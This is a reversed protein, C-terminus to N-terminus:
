LEDLHNLNERAEQAEESNPAVAIVREWEERAQAYRERESYLYGLNLRSQVENPDLELARRYAAYAEYDMGKEGYAVGLNTHYGAVGPDRLIARQFISIAEDLQDSSYAEIGAANLQEAEPNRREGGPAGPSTQDGAPQPALATGGAAGAEIPTGCTNCFDWDSLLVGGCGACRAHAQTGCETCFPQNPWIPEGCQRCPVIGPVNASQGCRPCYEWGEELFLTCVACIDAV